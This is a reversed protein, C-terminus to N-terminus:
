LLPDADGKAVGGMSHLMVKVNIPGLSSSIGWCSESPVGGYNVVLNPCSPYALGFQLSSEELSPLPLRPLPVGLAHSKWRHKLM